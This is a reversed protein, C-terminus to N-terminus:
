APLFSFEVLVVGDVVHDDGDQVVILGADGDVGGLELDVLAAAFVYVSTSLVMGSASTVTVTVGGAFLSMVTSLAVRVKVVSLQFTACVTRTLAAWSLSGRSSVPLM